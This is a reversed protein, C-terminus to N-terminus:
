PAWLQSFDPISFVSRVEGVELKRWNRVPVNGYGKLRALDADDLLGMAKLITLAVSARARGRADGDSIKVTIGIGPSGQAVAGPLVCIILYGEAGGKSFVKDKAVSMLDTDFQGPGAVMVPNLTMAMTIIQCADRREPALDTPDAIIAVAQAMKDMPIGYVPASCGDIGVPLTMPDMDLMEGITERITVQVPHQLDLYDEVPAGLLKALALMGTHKGSCNHHFATPSQGALIMAQHTNKDYPWHIGCALDAEQTGIKHHMGEIVSTHIATGAHSGCMIGIEEGSFGFLNAGGREILPIAQFPKLSSRPYTIHDPNGAHALLQGNRDAICFTGYHVSESIDGRTVEVLPVHNDFRM